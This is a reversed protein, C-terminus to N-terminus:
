SRADATASARKAHPRKANPSLLSGRAAPSGSYHCLRISRFNRMRLRATCVASETSGGALEAQWRESLQLNFDM